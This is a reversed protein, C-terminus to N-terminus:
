ISIAGGGLSRRFWERRAPRFRAALTFEDHRRLGAYLWAATDCFSECAYERWRRSRDRVDLTALLSKPGESSWGLEGCAGVRMESALLREWSRRRPNGARLWIFHFLEHLLIRVLEGPRHLLAADLVIVRKRMFSGAHVEKGRAGGSCLQGRYAHLAPMVRIRVPGGKLGPLRRVAQEM